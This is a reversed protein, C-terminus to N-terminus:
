RIKRGFLLALRLFNEVLWTNAVIPVTFSLKNIWYVRALSNVIPLSLIARVIDWLVKVLASSYICHHISSYFHSWGAYVPRDRGCIMQVKVSRGDSKNLGASPSSILQQSSVWGRRRLYFQLEVTLVSLALTSVLTAM